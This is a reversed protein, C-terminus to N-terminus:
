EPGIRTDCCISMGGWVLLIVAGAGAAADERELGLKRM